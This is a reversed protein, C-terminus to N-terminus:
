QGRGGWNRGSDHGGWRNGWRNGWRQGGQQGQGGYQGEATEYHQSAQELASAVKGKEAPVKDATLKGGVCSSFAEHDAKLANIMDYIDGSVEAQDFLDKKEQLAELGAPIDVAITENVYKVIVHSETSNYNKAGECDAYAQGYAEHVSNAANFVPQAEDQGGNYNQCQQTLDKATTDINSIGNYVDLATGAFAGSALTLLTFSKM